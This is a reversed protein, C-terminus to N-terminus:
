RINFYWIWAGAGFIAAFFAAKWASKVVGWLFIVIALVGVAILAGVLVPNDSVATIFESPIQDVLPEPLRDLVEDPIKELTGEALDQVVDSPLRELVEPPIESIPPDGEQALYTVDM